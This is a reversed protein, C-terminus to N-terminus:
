NIELILRSRFTKLHSSVWPYEYPNIRIDDPLAKSININNIDWKHGTWVTGVEDDKYANLILDVTNKNCLADDGDLIAIICDKEKAISTSNEVVNKLAWKKEKNVVFTFREDSGVSHNVMFITDDDSMDDIIVAEWNPNTQEQLSKILEPVHPAANYMPIIFVVKM